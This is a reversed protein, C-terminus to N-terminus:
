STYGCVHRAVSRLTQLKAFLVAQTSYKAVPPTITPFAKSRGIRPRPQSGVHSRDKPRTPFKGTCHYYEGKRRTLGRITDGPRTCAERRCTCYRHRQPVAKGADYHLAGRGWDPGSGRASLLAPAADAPLVRAQEHLLVYLM